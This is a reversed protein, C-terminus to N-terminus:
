FLLTLGLATLLGFSARKHDVAKRLDRRLTDETTIGSKETVKADDSASGAFPLLGEAMVDLALSTTPSWRLGGGLALSASLLTSEYSAIGASGGGGERKAEYTVVSRMLALGGHGMVAVSKGLPSIISAASELEFASASTEGNAFIAPDFRDYDVSLQDTPLGHYRMAFRLGLKASLPHRYGLEFGVRSSTVKADRKYLAGTGAIESDISYAPIGYTFPLLPAAVYSLSLARPGSSELAANPTMGSSKARLGVTLKEKDDTEIAVGAHHARISRVTGCAIEHDDGDHFCVRSGIKLGNASGADIVVYDYDGVRIISQAHATATAGWAVLVLAVTALIKLAERYLSRDHHSQLSSNHWLLVMKGGFRRVTDRAKRLEALAAAPTLRMYDFLTGEMVTLPRERLALARREKIDFVPHERCTGSRFGVQEAYALTSDVRMGAAAAIRWTDPTEFRLYHQRGELPELDVGHREAVRRLAQAEAAYRDADRYSLYSPHLGVHHGRRKIKAFLADTFPDGLEYRWDHEGRQLAAIFYFRSPLGLRESEDMLFDFTDYPDASSDGFWSRARNVLLAADRRQGVDKLCNAVLGKFSARPAYLPDDVDHTLVLEYRHQRLPLTPWLAHLQQGLRDVYEDVLPQDLLGAAYSLSSKAEFRGHHDRERRVVEEYRTLFFFAAGFADVVGNRAYLAPIGPALSAATLWEAEPIALFVDPVRLERGEDGSLTLIVDPSGEVEELSYDLGLFEGLVVAYAYHREAIRGPPHRVILM